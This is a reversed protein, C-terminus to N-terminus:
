EGSAIEKQNLLIRPNFEGVLNKLMIDKVSGFNGLVWCLKAFATEAIMNDLPVVGGAILDRGTEYVYLNVGGRICQSTMGVFIGRKVLSALKSVTASSVHGLGTGEFIIGKVKKSEVLYDLVGSDFGPHFKM